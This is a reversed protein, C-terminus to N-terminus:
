GLSELLGRIAARCPPEDLTPAHGRGPVELTRLDPKLARMRAVTEASLIDSTAGRIVLTPVRALATFLPWLDPAPVGGVARMAEGIKPDFDPRPRGQGDDRYACRAFRMWDAADFDPLAAGNVLKAQAAADEWTLVPPLKGVYGAIRALGAAEVVPGVDNLVVAALLAPQTIALTLAILGGLSTGVLAVRPAGLAPLLQAVDAAYTLPVYNLHNPDYDSRGRGRLDPTLVRHTRALDLALAEFDRCNRTLGPLCLVPVGGRHQAGYERCYMRLGDRLPVFHEVYPLPENM